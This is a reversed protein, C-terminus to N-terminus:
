RRPQALSPGPQTLSQPQQTAEGTQDKTRVPKALLGRRAPESGPLEGFDFGVRGVELGLQGGELAHDAQVRLEPLAADVQRHGLPRYLLELGM